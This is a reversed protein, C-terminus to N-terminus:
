QIMTQFLGRLDGVGVMLGVGGHRSCTVTCHAVAFDGVTKEKSGQRTEREPHLEELM